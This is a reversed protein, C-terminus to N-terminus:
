LGRSLQKIFADADGDVMPESLSKKGGSSYVWPVSKRPKDMLKSWVPEDKSIDTTVEYFRWQHTGASKATHDDLWKRVKLSALTNRQKTTLADKASDDGDYVVCFLPTKSLSEEGDAGGDVWNTRVWNGVFLSLVVLLVCIALFKWDVQKQVRAAAGAASDVPRSTVAPDAAPIPVPRVVATEVPQKEDSRIVDSRRQFLNAM